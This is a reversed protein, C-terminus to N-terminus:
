PLCSTPSVVRQRSSLVNAVAELQIEGKTSAVRQENVRWIMEKLLMLSASRAKVSEVLEANSAESAYANFGNEKTPAFVCNGLQTYEVRELAPFRSLLEPTVIVEGRLSITRAFRSFSDPIQALLHSFNFFDSFALTAHHAVLPLTELRTQKNASLIGPLRRHIKTRNPGGRRRHLTPSCVHITTDSLAFHYIKSRIESPLSLFPFPTTSDTSTASSLAWSSKRSPSPTSSVSTSPTSYESHSPTSFYSSTPSASLSDTSLSATSRRLDQELALAMTIMASSMSTESAPHANSRLINTAPLHNTYFRPHRLSLWHDLTTTTAPLPDSDLVHSPLAVQPQLSIYRLTAAAPSVIQCM